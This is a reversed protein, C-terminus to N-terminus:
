HQTCYAPLFNDLSQSPDPCNETLNSHRLSSCAIEPFQMCALLSRYCWALEHVQMCAHMRSCKCANHFTRWANQFTRSCIAHKKSCEAYMRSYKEAHMRSCEQLTQFLRSYDPINQFMRSYEPVTCQQMSHQLFAACVCNCLWVCVFM